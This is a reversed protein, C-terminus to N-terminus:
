QRPEYWSELAEQVNQAAEEPALGENWMQTIWRRLENETNPEGSSLEEDALRVTSECDDRWSVFEAALENDLEVEHDSLSFFGPLANSYISAFEESSVWTLFTRAAEQHPSAANIGMAIDTHDSIYCQDGDSPVPPPFAGIEFDADQQFISIEWSGGPFVAADGLMFLQQMDTYSVAQYGSPFFDRWREIAEFAAVFEPDTFSATGDILGQRGEEGRWYNPGVSTYAMGTAIWDDATGWALPRHEGHAEIQELVEVLEDETSPIEVGAAEFAETNYYFGHIVSAMPVCYVSDDTSWTNIAIDPFNELGDLDGIEALHGQEFMQDSLDFPRCTIIDGATGGSLRSELAANYETPATPEFTLRIGSHQAEFAPIIENEWLAQDDSRWSEISLTVEDADTEGATQEGGDEDTAQRPDEGEGCAAIALAVVLIASARRFFRM